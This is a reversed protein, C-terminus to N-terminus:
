LTRVRCESQPSHGQSKRQSDGSPSEQNARIFEMAAGHMVDPAYTTRVAQSHNNGALVFKERDKWIWDPYHFHAEAHDLYGVWNDFGHRYPEGTTEVDGLGWKGFGATAYGARKLLDVFTSDKSTLRQNPDNARVRCHGTHLGTLLACRSPACMCCCAYANTFRIGSAALGDLHPTAVKTQGYCGLGGYGLDDAMILIINPLTRAPEAGSSSTTSPFGWFTLLVFAWSLTRM